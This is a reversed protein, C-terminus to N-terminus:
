IYCKCNGSSTWRSTSTGFGGGPGVSTCCTGTTRQETHESPTKATTDGRNFTWVCVHVCARRFMLVHVGHGCVHCLFCYQSLFLHCVKNLSSISILWIVEHLPFAAEYSANSLLRNLGPILFLSDHFFFM